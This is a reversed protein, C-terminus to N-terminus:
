SSAPSPPARGAFGAALGNARLPLEILRPRADPTGDAPRRRAGRLRLAHGVREAAELLFRTLLYAAIGLPLQLLLGVGFSPQTVVSFPVAGDHVLRELHEQLVFIGLPLAAFPLLPIRVADLDAGRRIDVVRSLLAFVVVGFGLMAGFMADQLYGHGSAALAHARISASPYAIRYALDHAIQSGALVLPITLLWVIKRRFM